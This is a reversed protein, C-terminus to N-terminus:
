YVHALSMPTVAEKVSLGDYDDVPDCDQDHHTTTAKTARTAKKTIELNAAIM